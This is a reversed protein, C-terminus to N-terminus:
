SLIKANRHTCLLRCGMRNGQLDVGFVKKGQRTFAVVHMEKEKAFVMAPCRRRREQLNLMM